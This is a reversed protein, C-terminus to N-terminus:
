DDSGSGGGGRGSKIYVMCIAVSSFTAFWTAASVVWGHAITFVSCHVLLLPLCYGSVIFGGFLFWMFDEMKEDAQSGASSRLHM